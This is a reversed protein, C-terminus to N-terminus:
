RCAFFAVYRGDIAIGMRAIGSDLLNHAHTPSNRWAAFAAEPSGATLSVNEVCHPSRAKAFRQGFGEHSLRDEKAMRIAHEDALASLPAVLALPELGQQTRYGNILEGLRAAYADAQADAHAAAASGTACAIVALALIAGLAKVTCRM